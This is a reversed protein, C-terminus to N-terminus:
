IEIREQSRISRTVPKRRELGLVAMEFLDVILDRKRRAGTGAGSIERITATGDCAQLIEATAQDLVFLRPNEREARRHVVAFTPTFKIHSAFKGNRAAALLQNADIKSKQLRVTGQVRPVLDILDTDSVPRGAASLRFMSRAPDWEGSVRERMEEILCGLKIAELMPTIKKEESDFEQRELAKVVRTRWRKSGEQEEIGSFIRDKAKKPLAALALSTLDRTPEKRIRRRSAKTQGHTRFTSILHQEIISELSAVPQSGEMSKQCYKRGRNALEHRADVPADLICAIAKAVERSSMGNRIALCNYGDVILESRPLKSLVEVTGILCRGCALVERAVIPRHLAVPFDQELCLVAVCSRIFDPVRWHPLFPLQVILDQLGLSQVLTRFNPRERGFEQGLAILGVKKGNQNLKSIARLLAFTGKNRGLKGYVGVYPLGKRHRGFMNGRLEHDKGIERMLKPFDLTPGLPTFLSPEIDFGWDHAIRNADIGAAVLQDRYGKGTVILSASRFIQDYTPGFQPLSRLRWIDSGATKVIHPVGLAQAVLHGAVAYPELYFSFVATIKRGKAVSLGLSSLKTVFPNHNPIHQQRRNFPETMHVHVSGRGHDNGLRERDRAEMFMRFQPEVENANTIVDVRHGKQAFRHAFWYSRM